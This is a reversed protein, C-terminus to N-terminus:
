RWKNHVATITDEQGHNEIHRVLKHVVDPSMQSEMGQIAGSRLSIEKDMMTWRDDPEALHSNSRWSSPATIVLRTSPGDEWGEVVLSVDTKASEYPLNPPITGEDQHSRFLAEGLNIGLSIHNVDFTEQVQRRELVMLHFDGKPDTSSEEQASERNNSKHLLDSM